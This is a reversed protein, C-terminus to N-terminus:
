AQGDQLAPFLYLHHMGVVKTAEYGPVAFGYSVFAIPRGLRSAEFAVKKAMKVIDRSEGFTYVVTTTEPLKVRWFDAWYVTVNPQNRSLFRAIVVLIPNLEYGIATAQRRAAARLVIGDGSGIDVLTDRESLPYLEDFARQIDKPKSPVYPAGRVVVLGFVLVIGVLLWVFWM